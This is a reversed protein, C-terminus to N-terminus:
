SLFAGYYEITKDDIDLARIYYTSACRIFFLSSFLLLSVIRISQMAM